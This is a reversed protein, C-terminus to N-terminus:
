VVGLIRWWTMAMVLLVLLSTIALLGGAKLFDSARVYGSAYVIANPPTGVVLLYAFASSIATAFGITLLSTGSIAAMNLTIPGIVAVAAGNSMTNSVGMVLVSVTAILPIGANAGLPVLLALFNEALWRAAGTNKMVLGLSIAGAYLLVVGWDVGKNYDDWAVLKFILYLSAGIIAVIGLGIQGSVTIWMVLTVLFIGAAMWEQQTMRGKEGVEQQISEMAASLDKVEPKFIRLLIFATIPIMVLVLPFAYLMWQGYSIDIGYMQSWYEIMIVNRAGGSPTGLGGIAAGYAIAFMMLKGLNKLDDGSKVTLAIGVPLFMAAVTHDAIFAALIATTAVIGMVVREIKAGTRKLIFLGIRKDLEQKVIATAIMLSGMIFFVSDSFFSKAVANPRMGVFIVEGIVILFAVAPFPIAETLFFVVAMATIAIITKADKTLVAVESVTLKRGDKVLVEKWTNTIVRDEAVFVEEGDETEVSRENETMVRHLTIEDGNRRVKKKRSAIIEGVVLAKGDQTVLLVGEISVVRGNEFVAYDGDVFVGRGDSVVVANGSTGYPLLYILAFLGFGIILGKNKKLLDFAEGFM